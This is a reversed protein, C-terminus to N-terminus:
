SGLLRGHDLRSESRPIRLDLRVRSHGAKHGSPQDKLNSHFVMGYGLGVRAQTGMDRVASFPRLVTSLCPFSCGQCPNGAGRPLDGFAPILSVCNKNSKQSLLRVIYVLNAQFEYLDAEKQGGRKQKLTPAM